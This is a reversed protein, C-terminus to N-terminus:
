VGSAPPPIRASDFAAHLQILTTEDTGSKEILQSLPHDDDPAQTSIVIGLAERRKSMGQMLNDLLERTKAQALEDYVWLSPAL